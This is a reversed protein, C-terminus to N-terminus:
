CPVWPLALRMDGRSLLAGSVDQEWVGQGEGKHRGKGPAGKMDKKVFSGGEGRGVGEVGTRYGPTPGGRPAGVGPPQGLLTQSVKPKGDAEEWVPPEQLHPECGM